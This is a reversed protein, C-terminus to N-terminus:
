RSEGQKKLLGIVEANAANAANYAANGPQNICVVVAFNDRPAVWACGFTGLYSSGHYLVTGTAWSPQTLRWGLGHDGDFPPTELQKYTEPKLLLGGGRFGRLQDRVFAAWDKLTGHVRGTPAWVPPLDASPGNYPKPQGNENHQWPQDIQGLTGTGGFGASKMQLPTFINDTVANEWSEGTVKEVVAGAVICDLNAFAFDVGPRRTPKKSLANRIVSLRQGKGDPGMYDNLDFDVPMGSYNSLLELMTVKQYTPDMESAYEPFVEGLTTNWKLKGRDVLEAILTCTMTSCGSGLYWEDDIGVPIESGRKRIGAVGAWKIGDSTVVALAMAPQDYEKRVQELIRNVIQDGVGAPPSPSPQPAAVITQAPVGPKVRAHQWIFVVTAALALLGAVLGIVAKHNFQARRSAASASSPVGDLLLKYVEVKASINKLQPSDLKCISHSVKNEIQEFVARSICIGGPDALPEIRAAINVGDGLVDNDRWVVDGLHIGIRIM